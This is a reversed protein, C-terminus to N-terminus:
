PVESQVDTLIQLLAQGIQNAQKSSLGKIDNKESGLLILLHLPISLANSISELTDTSPLRDGAELRSIYSADVDILKGLEKQSLGKTARAIRIAKGYDM